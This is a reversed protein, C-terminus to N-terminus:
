NKKLRSIQTQTLGTVKSIVQPKFGERLMRQATELKGEKKGKQVGEQMLDEKWKDIATSLMKEGEKSELKNEDIKINFKHRM